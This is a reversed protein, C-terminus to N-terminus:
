KYLWIIRETDPECLNKVNQLINKVLNTKDCSSPGSMIATFPHRLAFAEERKINYPLQETDVRKQPPPPINGEKQQPPPPINGEQPPPPPINGEHPPPPPTYVHTSQPYPHIIGHKNRNHRYMVDKRSTILEFKPCTTSDM